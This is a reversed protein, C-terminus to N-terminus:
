KAKKILIQEPTRTCEVKSLVKRDPGTQCVTIETINDFVAGTHLLEDSIFVTEARKGNIYITSYETFGKGAVYFGGDEPLVKVVDASIERIGMKMDTPEFPGKEGYALREGYLMDYQLTKLGELYREEHSFSKHYQAMIGGSIGTLEYLRSTLQFSSLDEDGGTIGCNSWIAYQTMFLSGTSIDDGKIGLSPLHDGFILLVVDEGYDDLASILQGLLADAERLQKIFYRFRASDTGEFVEGDELQIESDECDSPYKGHCQVSVAFVFDENDTSNLADFICDKLVADKAWGNETYEVGDMYELSTFTDFGLNPYVENRGYFSGNHNHIAHTSYGLEKLNYAISECTEDRLISEFPYEGVGFYDLSMGTLVEFETNVTGAGVTPVHLNGSPYNDRIYTFNPIPNEAFTVGDILYPDFFSELQLVIINPTSKASAEPNLESLMEGVTEPSYDEPEDIGNEFISKTFCYAFGCDEYAENISEYDAALAVDATGWRGVGFLVASFVIVAPLAHAFRPTRPCKPAKFFLLVSGVLVVAFSFCILILELTTFYVDAIQLGSGLVLIDRASFPTTRFALTASNTIGCILWITSIFISLFVRRRVLLVLSLTVLIILSNILFMHPRTIIHVIVRGPNARGLAEIIVNLALAIIILTRLPYLDFATNLKKALTKMVNGKGLLKWVSM